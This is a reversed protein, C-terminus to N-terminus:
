PLRDVDLTVLEGNALSATDDEIWDTVEDDVVDLNDTWFRTLADRIEEDPRGVLTAALRNFESEMAALESDDSMISAYLRSGIGDADAALHPRRV